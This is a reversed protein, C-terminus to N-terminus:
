AALKQRRRAIFGLGALASMFLPLAALIPVEPVSKNVDFTLDVSTIVNKPVPDSNSLSDFFM